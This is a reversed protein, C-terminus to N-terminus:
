LLNKIILYMHIYIFLYDNTIIDFTNQQISKYKHQFIQKFLMCKPMRIRCLLKFYSNMNKTTNYLVTKNRLYVELVVM